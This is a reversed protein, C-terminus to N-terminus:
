RRDGRDTLWLEVYALLGTLTSTRGSDDRPRALVETPAEAALKEAVRGTPHRHPAPRHAPRRRVHGVFEALGPGFLVALLGALYLWDSM